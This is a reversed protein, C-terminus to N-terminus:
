FEEALSKEEKEKKEEKKQDILFLPGYNPQQNPHINALHATYRTLSVNSTYAMVLNVNVVLKSTM